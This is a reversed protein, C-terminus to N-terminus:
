GHRMCVIMVSILLGEAALLAWMVWIEVEESVRQWDVRKMMRLLAWGVILVGFAALWPCEIDRRSGEGWVLLALLGINCAALFRVVAPVSRERHQRPEASRGGGIERPPREVTPPRCLRGWDATSGSAARSGQVGVNGLGRLGTASCARCSRSRPEISQTWEEWVPLHDRGHAYHLWVSRRRKGQLIRFLEQVAEGAVPLVADHWSGPREEWWRQGARIRREEDATVAVRRLAPEWDTNEM